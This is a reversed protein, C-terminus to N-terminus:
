KKKPPSTTHHVFSDIMNQLLHFVPFVPIM